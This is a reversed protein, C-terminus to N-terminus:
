HRFPGGSEAGGVARGFECSLLRVKPWRIVSGAFVVVCAEKTYTYNISYCQSSAM